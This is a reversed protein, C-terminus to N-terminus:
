RLTWAGDECTASFGGGNPIHNAKDQDFGHFGRMAAADLTAPCNTVWWRLAQMFQGHGFVAVCSVPLTALRALASRVRDIFAAFSEAGPGDVHHPDAARWFAVVQPRRQLATTHACTNPCLFTFEEVPWIEVPIAAFRGLTPAATQEVRLFPSCVIWDPPQTFSRSVAEAQEHGKATLPISAPDATALGANAASEGHRIFRVTLM